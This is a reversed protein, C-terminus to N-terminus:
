YLVYEWKRTSFSGVDSIHYDYIWGLLNVTVTINIIVKIIWLCWCPLLYCELKTFIDVNLTTSNYRQWNEWLYDCFIGWPEGTLALYPTYKPSGTQLQYKAETRTITLSIHVINSQTIVATTQIYRLWSSYQYLLRCGAGEGPTGFVRNRSGSTHNVPIFRLM